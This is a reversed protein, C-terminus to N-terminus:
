DAKHSVCTTEGSREDGFPLLAVAFHRHPSGGWGERRMSAMTAYSDSFDLLMSWM